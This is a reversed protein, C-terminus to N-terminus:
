HHASPPLSYDGNYRPSLVIYESGRLGAAEEVSNIIKCEKPNVGYLQILQQASIYHEDGDKKSIVNGPCILYKKM